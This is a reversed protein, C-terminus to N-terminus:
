RDLHDQIWRLMNDAVATMWKTSNEYRTIPGAQTTVKQWVEEAYHITEEKHLDPIPKSLDRARVMLTFLVSQMCWNNIIRQAEADDAVRLNPKQVM